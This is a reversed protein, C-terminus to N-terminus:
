ANAVVLARHHKRVLGLAAFRAVSPRWPEVHLPPAAAVVDHDAAMPRRQSQVHAVVEDGQVASADPSPAKRRNPEFVARHELNAARLLFDSGALSGSRHLPRSKGAHVVKWKWWTSSHLARWSM